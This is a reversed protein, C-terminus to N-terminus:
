GRLPCDSGPRAGCPRGAAVRGREAGAAVGSWIAALPEVMVNGVVPSWFDAVRVDGNPGICAHEWPARCPDIRSRNAHEDALLFERIGPTADLRCRWVAPPAVHDVMGLGLERGRASSGQRLAAEDRPLEARAVDNKAALEELKLWDVGVDAALECLAGLEHRNSRLVVCSIGLRLDIGESRRWAVIDRLQAVVRALSSGARVADNVGASAGDLSVSISCVGLEVLRRAVPEDLLMGNSLLHAVYPAPGKEARIAALLEFLRPTVLSEGGHVFGFYDAFGFDDRLRDLVGDSLTRATGAATRRPSDNICHGCALNCRETVSVDIRRPRSHVGTAGGRFERECLAANGLFARRQRAERDSMSRRAVLGANPGLTVTQRSIRVLGVTALPEIFDLEGDELDVEVSEDGAHLAVDLTEGGAARRLVLVSGEAYLISPEGRLLAPSRARLGFLRRTLARLHENRAAPDWPMPARDQWAHEPELEVVRACLGIEEGYLLAPVGPFTALALLGLAARDPARHLACLTAFRPHDHTSLFRLAASEPGGRELASSTLRRAASRADITRTAVLETIAAHFAFDTAVDVAGEARWRWAHDPVVEGVILADPRVARLRARIQCALEHPVEAAADLRFGDIGLRAWHEAADLVLARVEPHDLDFLPADTRRGYRALAPPEGSQWQFWGAYRSSRGLRRVDEFPPFGHGAHSFSFDLLIRMGRTHADDVLRRFAPEGGLAPDVRLPDVLDYRHCTAALQVPTLYLVTVGLERLEDLSRRVGELHGGAPRDIGPNVPWDARDLEPRFRDVFVTYVLSGPWWSPHSPAPPELELPAGREDGCLTGDALEFRLRCSRTSVPLTVAFVLHEDEEGVLQMPSQHEQEDGGEAWRAVLAAGHGKRLAASLGVTGREDVFVFPLAPAFVLPEPAAGVGLLNNRQGLVSRTRPNGPDLRWQGDVRLKYRYVGVPLLFSAVFAQGSASPRLAIATRWDGIEGFLEVRSAPGLGTVCLEVPTRPPEAPADRARSKSAEPAAAPSEVV